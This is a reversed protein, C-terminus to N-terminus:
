EAVEVVLRAGAGDDWRKTVHLEHVVQDHQILADLIAKAVNDVDPKVRHPQGAMAAQRKRPWSSPMEFFAQARLVGPAGGALKVLVRSAALRAVDAWARYAVVVPRRRWKDRQTMRPKGIPDGPITFSM